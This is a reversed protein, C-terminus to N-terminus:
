IVFASNRIAKWAANILIKVSLFTLNLNRPAPKTGRLGSLTMEFSSTFNDVGEGVLLRGAAVM